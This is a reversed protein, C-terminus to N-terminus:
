ENRKLGYTEGPKMDKPLVEKGEKDVAIFLPKDPNQKKAKPKQEKKEEKKKGREKPALAKELAELNFQETM